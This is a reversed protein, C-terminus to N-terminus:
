KWFVGVRKKYERFDDGFRAELEHDEARIMWVGTVLAFLWLWFSVEMGSAIVVATLNLLHALYIPHRMRSHLGTTVLGYSEERADLEERGSLKRLTFGKGVRTYLYIGGLAFPLAVAVGWVNDYLLRDKFPYTIAGAILILTLWMVGMFPFPRSRKRWAKAFPHVLLWLPPITSYILTLFWLLTRM